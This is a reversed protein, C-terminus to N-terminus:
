QEALFLDDVRLALDSLVTSAVTEGPTYQRAMEYPGEESLSYVEVSHTRPDILWYERVGAREYASFKNKLHGGSALHRALAVEM